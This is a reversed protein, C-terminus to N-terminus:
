EDERSYLEPSEISSMKADKLSDMLAHQSTFEEDSTLHQISDEEVEEMIADQSTFDEDLLSHRNNNNKKGVNSGSESYAVNIKDSHNNDEGVSMSDTGYIQKIYDVVRINRELAVPNDEWYRM